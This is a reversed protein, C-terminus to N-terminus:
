ALEVSSEWLQRPRGRGDECYTQGGIHELKERKNWEKSIDLGCYYGAKRVSQVLDNRIGQNEGRQIIREKRFHKMEEGAKSIAAERDTDLERRCVIASALLQCIYLYM